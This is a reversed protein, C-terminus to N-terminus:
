LRKWKKLYACSKGAELELGGLKVWGASKREEIPRRAAQFNPTRNLFDPRPQPDSPFNSAQLQCSENM